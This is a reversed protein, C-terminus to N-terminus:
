LTPDVDQPNAIKVLLVPYNDGWESSTREIDIVYFDTGAASVDLYMQGATGGLDYANGVVDANIAVAAASVVKKAQVKFVHDERAPYVLPANVDGSDKKGSATYDSSGFGYMAVGFVGDGATYAMAAGDEVQVPDGNEITDTGADIPVRRTPSAGTGGDRNHYRLSFPNLSLAM